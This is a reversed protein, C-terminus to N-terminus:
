RRRGPKPTGGDYSSVVHLKERRQQYPAETPESSFSVSLIIGVILLSSILSSGGSSIFPLPKGTIPFLGVVCLINIFAQAVLMTTLAGAILMGYSNTADKAICYGGYLFVVFLIVVVMAGILGLEEGIIAFIFDTEAEPLYQLKEYSNGIGVGLLGGSALAQLSHVIQYGDGDANGWPDLFTLLRATRYPASFIAAAGLAIILVGLLLVWRWPVGGFILISFIAVLCIVTTGLDSQLVFLLALPAVIFIACRVLVKLADAGDNFDVMIRAAVLVLAIKMFEGVQISVGGIMLWRKAGLAATGLAATLLVGIVCVAWFGYVLFKSTMAEFGVTKTAIIVAICLIVGIIAFVVQKITEGYADGQEVYATVSSASFVMVLGIVVLAAASLVVMLRPVVIEKSSRQLRSHSPMPTRQSHTRPARNMISRAKGAVRDSASWIRSCM